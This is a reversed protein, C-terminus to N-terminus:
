KNLIRRPVVRGKTKPKEESSEESSESSSKEASKSVSKSSKKGSKSSSKESSKDGSKSSKSSEDSSSDNPRYKRDVKISFKKCFALEEDTLEKLAYATRQNNLKGIYTATDTNVDARVVINKMSKCFCIDEFTKKGITLPTLNLREKEDESGDEDESGKKNKKKTDKKKAMQTRHTKCYKSGDVKNDACYKDKGDGRTYLYNCLKGKPDFDKKNIYEKKTATKPKNVPYIGVINSVIELSPIKMIKKVEDDTIDYGKNRLVECIPVVGYVFLAEKMHKVFEDEFLQSM